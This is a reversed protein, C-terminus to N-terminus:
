LVCASTSASMVPMRFTCFTKRQFAHFANAVSIVSIVSLVSIMSLPGLCIMSM